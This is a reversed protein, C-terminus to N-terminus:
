GGFAFEECTRTEANYYWRFILAQCPGSYKPLSCPNKVPVETTTEYRYNIPNGFGFGLESESFGRGVPGTQHRGQNARDFNFTQGPITFHTTGIVLICRLRM